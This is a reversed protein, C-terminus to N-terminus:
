ISTNGTLFGFDGAEGRQIFIETFTFVRAEGLRAWGLWALGPTLHESPIAFIGDAAKGVTNAIIMKKGLGIIFRRVGSSFDGLTVVRCVIQHAIDHYRVIPGAILQPFMSIYLFVNIPNKQAPSKRRYVDVAYSMAQFTFFSIGIPLHITSLLVPPMGILTFLSNLNDVLFNTYKYTALLVLNGSIAFALLLQARRGESGGVLLVALYNFGCSLVMVLVFFAEGYAYFFLSAIVLMLNRVQKPLSIHGFLVIPLFLFLFAPETFLM